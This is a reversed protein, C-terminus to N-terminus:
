CLMNWIKRDECALDFATKNDEDKLYPDAGYELLIKVWVINKKKVVWHLPSCGFDDPMNVNMEDILYRAADWSQQLIALFFPTLGHVARPNKPSGAKLLADIDAISNNRAAFHLPLLMNNDRKTPDGGKDLLLRTLKPSNHLVALYLPTVGNKNAQNPNAYHHLLWKVMPMDGYILALHLFTDGNSDTYNPDVPILHNKCCNLAQCFTNPNANRFKQYRKFQIKNVLNRLSTILAGMTDLNKIVNPCKITIKKL